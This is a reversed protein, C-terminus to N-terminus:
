PRLRAKLPEPLRKEMAEAAKEPSVPTNELIGYM